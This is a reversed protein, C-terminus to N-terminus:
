FLFKSLHFSKLNICLLTSFNNSFVLLADIHLAAHSVALLWM